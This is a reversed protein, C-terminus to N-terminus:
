DRVTLANAVLFRLRLAFSELLAKLRRNEEKLRENEQRVERDSNGIDQAKPDDQMTATRGQRSLRGMKDFRAPIGDM